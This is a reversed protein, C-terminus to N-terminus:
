PLSGCSGQIVRDFSISHGRVPSGGANGGEAPSREGGMQASRLTRSVQRLDVMSKCRRRAVGSAAPTTAKVKAPLPRTTEAAEAAAVRYSASAAGAVQAPAM